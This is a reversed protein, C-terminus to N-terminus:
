KIFLEYVQRLLVCIVRIVRIKASLVFKIFLSNDIIYFDTYIQAIRTM